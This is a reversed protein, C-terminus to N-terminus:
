LAEIRARAIAGLVDALADTKEKKRKRKRDMSMRMRAVMMRAIAKKARGNRVQASVRSAM